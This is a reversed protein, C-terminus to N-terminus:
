ILNFVPLEFFYKEDCTVTVVVTCLKRADIDGIYSPHGLVTYVLQTLNPLFFKSVSCSAWTSCQRLLFLWLM